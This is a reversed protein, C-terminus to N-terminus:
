RRAGGLGPADIPHHRGIAAIAQDALIPREPDPEIGCEPHRRAPWRCPRCAAPVSRRTSGADFPRLISANSQLPGTGFGATAHVLKTVSQNEGKEREGDHREPRHRPVGVGATRAGYAFCRLVFGIEEGAFQRLPHLDDGRLEALHAGSMSTAHSRM